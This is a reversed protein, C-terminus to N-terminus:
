KIREKVAAHVMGEIEMNWEAGVAAGVTIEVCIGSLFFGNGFIYLRQAPFNFEDPLIRSFFDGDMRNKKATSCGRQKSWSLERRYYM